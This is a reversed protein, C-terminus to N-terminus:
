YGLWTSGTIIANTPLTANAAFGVQSYSGSTLIIYKHRAENFSVTISNAKIPWPDTTLNSTTV